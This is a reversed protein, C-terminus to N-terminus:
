SNYFLTMNAGTSVVQGHKQDQVYESCGSFVYVSRPGLGRALLLRYTPYIRLPYIANINDEPLRIFACQRLKCYLAHMESSSNDQLFRRLKLKTDIDDMHRCAALETLAELIM